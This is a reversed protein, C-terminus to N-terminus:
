SLYRREVLQYFELVMENDNSWKLKPRLHNELYDMASERSGTTNLKEVAEDYLNADNGFLFNIYSFRKNLGIFTKLDKIPTLQMKGALDRSEDKRFQDNLSHKDSDATKIRISDSLTRKGNAFSFASGSQTPQSPQQQTAGNTQSGNGNHNGNGNGNMGNPAPQAVPQYSPLQNYAPQTPPQNGVPSANPLYYGNQPQSSYPQPQPQTPQQYAPQQGYYPQQEPLPISLVVEYLERVYNTLLDKDVKSVSGGQQQIGQNLYNIKELLVSIKTQIKIDM